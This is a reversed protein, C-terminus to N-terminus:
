GTKKVVLHTYIDGKTEMVDRPLIKVVVKLVPEGNVFCAYVGKDERIVRSIILEGVSDVVIHREYPGTGLSNFGANFYISDDKVWRVEDNITRKTMCAVQMSEGKVVQKYLLGKFRLEKHSKHYLPVCDYCLKQVRFNKLAKVKRYVKNYDRSLAKSQCQYIRADGMKELIKVYCLYYLHMKKEDSRCFCRTWETIHYDIITKIPMRQLVENVVLVSENVYM